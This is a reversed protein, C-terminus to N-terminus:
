EIQNEILNLQKEKLIRMYQYQVITEQKAKPYCKDCFISNRGYQKYSVYIVTLCHLCYWKYKTNFTFKNSVSEQKNKNLIIQYTQSKTLDM